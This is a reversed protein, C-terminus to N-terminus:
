QVVPPEDHEDELPEADAGPVHIIVPYVLGAVEWNGGYEAGLSLESPLRITVGIERLEGHQLSVAGEELTMRVLGGHASAISDAIVDVRRQTVSLRTVYARRLAREIGGALIIGFAQVKRLRVTVNGDNLVTLRQPVTEGPRATLRLQEPFVRLRPAAEVDVQAPRMAGDVSLVGSYTGPVVSSPLFLRLVRPDTDSEVMFEVSDMPERVSRMTLSIESASETLEPIIGTLSSPIGRFRVPTPEAEKSTARAM